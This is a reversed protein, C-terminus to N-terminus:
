EGDEFFPKNDKTMSRRGKEVHRYYVLVNGMDWQVSVLTENPKGQYSCSLTYPKYIDDVTFTHETSQEIVIGDGSSHLPSFCNIM